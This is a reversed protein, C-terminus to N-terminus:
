GIGSVSISGEGNATSNGTDEATGPIGDRDAPRKIGSVALGGARAEAMGTRRAEDRAPAPAAPGSLVAWLLAAVGTAAQVSAGAMQGADLSGLLWVLPTSVIAAVAVIILTIKWHHSVEGAEGRFGDASWGRM